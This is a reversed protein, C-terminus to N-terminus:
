LRGLTPHINRKRERQKLREWMVDSQTVPETRPRRAHVTRRALENAAYSLVDVQDDHKGVPFTLLEDEFDSLWPADKPWFVRGADVLAVATEARAIKNKDPLLWRVVIGERQVEAFLSLTASQKEVGIWAPSQAEWAERIMPAHDAHTVRVRRLDLLILASPDTPTVAWTALVTYDSRTNRTYAPDMTSFRWCESDAVLVGDGLSYFTDGDVTQSSWYRFMTRRFMGGGAAVPRQQYLSAWPGPGVDTRIGALAVEDFREPCLAQGPARGLPDDEEATAPLRLREIRMGTNAELLRGILDDAHWRSMIVLVKGGPERRTLFVSQWWEWLHERQVASQAEESNKIPDDVIMLHGGKGTLPGGAGATMMGGDGHEFEWRAAARSTDDLKVGFQAGVDGVIERARRGHTAAFDAEYSALLVRKRHKITYWAPTWRSCLETKGHRVPEEVILCDSEDDEMMAVIRNSTHVLHNYPSWLGNSFRTAFDAPSRLALAHDLSKEYWQQDAPPLAAVEEPTMSLLEDLATTAM